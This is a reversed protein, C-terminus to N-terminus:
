RSRRQTAAYDEGLDTDGARRRHALSALERRSARRDRRNEARCWIGGHCLECPCLGAGLFTPVGGWTCRTSAALHTQIDSPLDCEGHRHDHIAELPARDVWQQVRFPVTKDTRSM